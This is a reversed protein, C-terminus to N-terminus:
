IFKNGLMENWKPIDFAPTIDSSNEIHNSRFVIGRFKGMDKHYHHFDIITAPINHKENLYLLLEVTKEIQIDTFKEWHSYGLWNKKFISDKPCEENLWNVYKNNPLKYLCGMNELVVSISKRDIDKIGLFDSHNNDSFHQYIVGERSVTFTNWKKSKKYDKNQLRIIHNHDKRLSVGLVIQTKSLRTKYHNDPKTWYTKKDIELM